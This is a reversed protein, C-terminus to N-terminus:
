YKLVLKLTINILKILDAKNKLSTQVNEKLNIKHISFSFDHM